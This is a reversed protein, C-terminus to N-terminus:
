SDLSRGTENSNNNPNPDPALPQGPGPGEPHRPALKRNRCDAILDLVELVTQGILTESGAPGVIAETRTALDGIEITVDTM